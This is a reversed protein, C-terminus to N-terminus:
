SGCNVATDFVENALQQNDILGTQNVDWYNARYFAMTMNLLDRNQNLAEHLGKTGSQKIEDIINWGPWRPNEKRSIGKFVEGGGNVADNLYGGQAQMAKQYASLFDAM